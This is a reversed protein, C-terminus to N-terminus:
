PKPKPDEATRAKSPPAAPKQELVPGPAPTTEPKPLRFRAPDIKEDFTVTTLLTEMTAPGASMAERYPIKIGGVERWDSVLATYPVQGQPSDQKGKQFVRLHTSADFCMTVPQVIKGTLEVCELPSGAPAEPPTPVTRVKRYLKKLRVDLDWTAELRSQEAEAGKLVRLGNIPDQSWEVSGTSGQRSSGIGPMEMVGFAKGDSTSWREMSGTIGMSKVSVEAKVYRTRHRALAAPGGVAKAYDDLIAQASRARAAPAPDAARAAGAAMLAMVMAVLM